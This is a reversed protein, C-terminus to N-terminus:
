ERSTPVADPERRYDPLLSDRDVPERERGLRCILLASVRHAPSSDSPVTVGARELEARFRVAGNGVGIMPRGDLERQAALREALDAPTIATPEMTTRHDRYASAFVEGRRADIVALAPGENLPDIGRALAELSSVGVLPLDHGQALARATSIGLRLGTFGGPGTGVCIRAVSEWGIGAQALAQELLPLLTEAHRPREGGPPDDRLEIQDRDLVAVATASTATDIGLIAVSV